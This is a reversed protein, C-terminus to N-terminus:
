KLLVRQVSLGAKIIYAGANGMPVTTTGLARVLKVLNGNMDFIEVSGSFNRVLISMGSTAITPVLGASTAVVHETASSSEAITVSSSSSELPIGSSSSVDPKASSSSEAPIVDTIKGQIGNAIIQALEKAGTANPHVKDDQLWETKNFLTRLDILKVGKSNAASKIIPNITSVIATDTIFWGEHPHNAYPQLTAYIIPKQPQHAFTDILAEYDRTMESILADKTINKYEYFYYNYNTGDGSFFYKSDNTGLEIVVIDPAFNYAKKFEDQAWYSEGSSKHFMKGSNGYNNVEYESGLIQQLHQPYTTAGNLGYGYTISNGVCAVKTATQASIATTAFFAAGMIAWFKSGM